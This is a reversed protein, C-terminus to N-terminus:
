TKGKRLKELLSTTSYNELLPFICVKGGYSEVIDKGVVQQPKYDGGKVIIDPKLSKIIEIPTDESFVTVFDVTELSALINARQTEPILPRSNGKLRKVSYDSNIAVVLIDGLTKAKRIIDIHGPHLLDFCGNTFVIKKNKRKNKRIENELAKLEIVKSQVIYGAEYLDLLEQQSISSTGVRSVIIGAASNAMKVSYEWNGTILLSLTFTSIVTDGAGTVDYVDKTYSSIHKTKENKLRYSIGDKGRTLLLGDLNCKEILLRTVRNLSNNDSIQLGSLFQAEKLNPTIVNVGKYKSLNAGKPDAISLINNKRTIKIINSILDKSIVGKAYDSFIVADPKTKNISTFVKTLIKKKDKNDIPNSAENDYRVVQQNEAIVRNKTTTPRGSVRIIGKSLIKFNRIHNLLLDGEIEKGIVGYLEVNAGASKLNSAVNAAGGPSTTVNDIHIIPVPAEPSTRNVKGSIYRDLMLDGIVIIKLSNLRKIFKNRDM